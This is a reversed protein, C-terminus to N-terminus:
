IGGIHFLFGNPLQNLGEKAIGYTIHIKPILKNRIGSYLRFYTSSSWSQFKGPHKSSALQDNGMCLWLRITALEKAISERNQTLQCPVSWCWRCSSSGTKRVVICRISLQPKYSAQNAGLGLVSHTCTNDSCHWMRYRHWHAEWQDRSMCASCVQVYIANGGM